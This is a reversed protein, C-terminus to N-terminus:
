LNDLLIDLEEKFDRDYQRCTSAFEELREILEESNCNETFFEDDTGMALNYTADKHAEELMERRLVERDEATIMQLGKTNTTNGYSSSPEM